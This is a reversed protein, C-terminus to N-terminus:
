PHTKLLKFIPHMESLQRHTTTIFPEICAHARLWHHIFQHVDADNSCVRAKGLQGFGVPPLMFNRSRANIFSTKRNLTGNKSDVSIKGIM